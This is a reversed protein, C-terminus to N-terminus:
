QQSTAWPCYQVQGGDVSDAVPNGLQDSPDTNKPNNPCNSTSAETNGEVDKPGKDSGWWNNSANFDNDTSRLDVAFQENGVINNGQAENSSPAPGDQTAPSIGIGTWNDRIDNDRIENNSSEGQIVVGFSSDTDFKNNVIDNGKIVAQDTNRIALGVENKRITNDNVSVGDAASGFAIGTAAEGTPEYKHNEITNNTITAKAGHSVQIGNQQVKGTEGAGTITNNRITAQSGMSDVVVASKAYGTFTNNAITASGSTPVTRDGVYIAVGGSGLSGRRLDVIENNIITVEAKERVYVGHDLGSMPGAITFGNVTATVSSGQVTILSDTGSLSSPPAITTNDSSGLSMITASKDITIQEEYTGPAVCVTGDTM